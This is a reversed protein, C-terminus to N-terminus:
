NIKFFYSYLARRHDQLLRYLQKLESFMQNLPHILWKLNSIKDMQSNDQM